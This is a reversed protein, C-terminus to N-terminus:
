SRAKPADVLYIKCHIDLKLASSALIPVSNERAVVSPLLALWVAWSM